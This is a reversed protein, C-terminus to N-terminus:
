RAAEREHMLEEPSTYPELDAAAANAYVVGDHLRDIRDGPLLVSRGFLGGARLVLGVFIGSGDDELVEEVLGLEEEDRGLVPMGEEIELYSGERM